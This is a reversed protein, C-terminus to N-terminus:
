PLVTLAFNIQYYRGGMAQITPPQIGFRALWWASVLLPVGPSVLLMNWPEVMVELGHRTQDPILFPLVGGKTIEYYFSELRGKEVTSLYLQCQVEQAASSYRRRSKGPGFDPRSLLRGDRLPESYGSKLVKQPLLSPWELM